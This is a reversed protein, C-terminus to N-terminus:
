ISPGATQLTRPQGIKIEMGEPLSSSTAILAELDTSGIMEPPAGGATLLRRAEKARLSDPLDVLSLSRAAALFRTPLQCLTYPAQCVQGTDTAWHVSRLVFVLVTEGSSQAQVAPAPSPRHIATRDNLIATVHARGRKIIQEMAEDIERLLGRLQGRFDRSVTPVLLTLQEICALLRTNDQRRQELEKMVEDVAATVDAATKERESKERQANVRCQTKATASNPKKKSAPM